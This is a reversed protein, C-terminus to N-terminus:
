FRPAKDPADPKREGGEPQMRAMKSHEDLAFRQLAKVNKFDLLYLSSRQGDEIQCGVLTLSLLEGQKKVDAQIDTQVASLRSWLEPTYDDPRM